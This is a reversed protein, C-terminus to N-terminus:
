QDFYLKKSRETLPEIYREIEILEGLSEFNLNKWGSRGIWEFDQLEYNTYLYQRAIVLKANSEVLFYAYSLSCSLVTENQHSTYIVWVNQFEKHNYHAIKLVLRPTFLPNDKGKRLKYLLPSKLSDLRTIGLNANMEAVVYQHMEDYAKNQGILNPLNDVSFAHAEARAFEEFYAKVEELNM